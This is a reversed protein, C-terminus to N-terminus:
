APKSKETISKALEKCQRTDVICLETWKGLWDKTRRHSSEYNTKDALFNKSTEPNYDYFTTGKQNISPYGRCVAYRLYNGLDYYDENKNGVTKKRNLYRDNDSFETKELKDVKKIIGANQISSLTDHVKVQDSLLYNTDDTGFKHRLNQPIEDSVVSHRYPEHYKGPIHLANKPYDITTQVMGDAEVQRYHTGDGTTYIKADGHSENHKLTPTYGIRDRRNDIVQNTAYKQNQKRKSNFSHVNYENTRSLSRKLDQDVVADILSEKKSQESM